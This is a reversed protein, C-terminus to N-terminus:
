FVAVVSFDVIVVVVVDVVVVVVVVIVDDSNFSILSSILVVFILGEFIGWVGRGSFVGAPFGLFLSVLFGFFSLMSRPCGCMMIPITRATKKTNTAIGIIEM